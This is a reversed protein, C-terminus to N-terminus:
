NALQQTGIEAVCGLICSLVARYDVENILEGNLLKVQRLTSFVNRGNAFRM